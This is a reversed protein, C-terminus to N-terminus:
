EASVDRLHGTEVERKFLAAMAPRGEVAAGVLGCVADALRLLADSEDKVGRM